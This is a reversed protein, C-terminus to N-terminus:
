RRGRMGESGVGVVRSGSLAYGNKADPAMVLEVREVPLRHGADVGDLHEAGKRRL